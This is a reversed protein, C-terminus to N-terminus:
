HPEQSLSSYYYDREDYPKYYIKGRLMNQDALVKFNKDASKMMLEWAQPSVERKVQKNVYDVVITEATKIDILLSTNDISYSHDIFKNGAKKLQDLRYNAYKKLMAYIDNRFAQQALYEEKHKKYYSEMLRFYGDITKLKSDFSNLLNKLADPNSYNKNNIKLVNNKITIDDKSFKVIEGTIAKLTKETM